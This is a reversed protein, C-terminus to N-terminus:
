KELIKLHVHDLDLKKRAENYNPDLRLAEAYHSAAEDYKEQRSLVAGLNTHTDARRPNLRLSETFHAAAEALRGQRFCDIGLNNYAKAFGPNLRLVATYHAAAEDYRGERSLIMALNYHADFSEPNLQLALTYHGAAEGYKGQRSLVVGLNNQAIDDDPNIRLAKTYHAGAAELNGRRDLDIGLNNHAKAFSPDLRLAENYQTAAEDYRGQRSLLMGLNFHSDVHDPNLRLAEEYHATAEADKGQSFLAVGLNNHISPDTPDLRLARVYHAVADDIDGRRYLDFGLNYQAVPSLSAGHTLAHTWLSRSDRWTQTQYWTMPFLGVLAIVCLSFIGVVRRRRRSSTQGLRCLGAAALIVWGTMALYSYRDAAINESIRLIGLNPALIVVYSAWAAMLGPWRRRLLFAGVSIAVVALISEIFPSALWDIRKPSPYVPVLNLPWITKVIYFWIGYCVQAIRASADHQKTSFLAQSRAAIALGMFVLSVIIFPVKEQWMRRAALGFWRGPGDGLRRLPYVDLILLVAPLSMAVAHALLAAVFLMWTALLWRRRPCSGDDFAHLYTLIALMSFLACPLYPQCSAWAVAEVRLPHVAFLATALAAALYCTWSGKVWLDAQCRALFTLTLVYLVVSNGVHLIISTLHYGFPDLKWVVYQAEFLLWALPQYVGLWFTTWAWKVQAIGLGRYFPNDSFNKSDDWNVFGNNLAPIFAVIVIVVLPVAVLGIRPHWGPLSQPSRQSSEREVVAPGALTPDNKTLSM